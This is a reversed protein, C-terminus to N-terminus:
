KILKLERLLEMLSPFKDRLLWARRLFFGKFVKSCLKGDVEKIQKYKKGSGIEYADITKALPNVLWYERVGAKEYELFKERLDRGMSEPSIIEVILDPAGDILTSKVIHMRDKAVFLLDPLRRRKQGPLRIQIANGTVVGLDGEEALGSMGAGIRLQLEEHETNGLDMMIVEGDVWEAFTKDDSWEVFEAETVRRGPHPKRDGNIEEMAKRPKKAVLTAM